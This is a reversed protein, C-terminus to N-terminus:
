GQGMKARKVTSDLQDAAEAQLGPLASTYTDLTIAVGSHGLRESVVKPHTGQQLMLTAHGHRLDHWRLGPLGAAKAIPLWARRLNSPDIPGGATTAFVLDADDYAPGLRLRDEAQRARVLKFAAVTEPSLSVARRSGSTKPPGFVFGQRPFWQVTQAVRLVRNDLDLDSWRLGLQEGRRLGTLLAVRVLPGIETADAAELLVGIRDPHLAVLERRRATPPDVSEAPNHALLQWQVAHTLARHMVAHHHAVSRPSLGGRGDLRGEALAKAYYAILHRPRLKALMIAGLAPILHREVIDTYFRLTKPTVNPVAFDNLWRTLFDGVTLKGPPLDIGTDRQHLLQVLLAEADKKTGKVSRWLQRRRGDDGRPLNVVVTWSGGRKRIHGQM